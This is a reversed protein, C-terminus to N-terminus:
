RELGALTGLHGTTGGQLRTEDIFTRRADLDDPRRHGRDPHRPHRHGADARGPAPQRGAPPHGPHRRQRPQRHARRGAGADPRQGARPHDRGAAAARRVAGHAPLRGPGRARGAGAARRGPPPCIAPLPRGAARAVRREGDGDARGDPPLGPVRVRRRRPAAPGPGARVDPRHAARGGLDGRGHAPGARGPPLAADVELWEAGHDRPDRGSRRRPGRQRGRPGPGGPQRVGQAARARLVPAADSGNM